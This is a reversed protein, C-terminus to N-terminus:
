SRVFQAQEGPFTRNEHTLVIVPTLLVCAILGSKADNM